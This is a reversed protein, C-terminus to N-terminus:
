MTAGQRQFPAGTNLINSGVVLKVSYVCYCLIFHSIEGFPEHLITGGDKKFTSACDSDAMRGTSLNPMTVDANQFTTSYQHGEQTHDPVTLEGKNEFPQGTATSLKIGLKHAVSHNLEAGPFTAEPECCSTRIWFGGHM